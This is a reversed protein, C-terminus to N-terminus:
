ENLLPFKQLEAQIQFGQEIVVIINLIWFLARMRKVLSSVENCEDIMLAAILRM